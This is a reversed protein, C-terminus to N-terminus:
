RGPHVDARSTHDTTPNMVPFRISALLADYTTRLYESLTAPRLDIGAIGADTFPVRVLEYTGRDPMGFEEGTREVLEAPDLEALFVHQVAIGEDSRDVLVLIQSVHRIRAGIEELVERRVTDELTADEPEVGGGVTVWYPQRGPRTRKIVLLDPGDLLVARASRRTVLDSV